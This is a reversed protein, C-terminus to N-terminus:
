IVFPHSAPEVPPHETDNGVEMEEIVILDAMAECADRLCIFWHSCKEGLCPPLTEGEGRVGSTFLSHCISAKLKEECYTIM